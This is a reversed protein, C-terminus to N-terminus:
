AVLAALREYAARGSAVQGEAAAVLEDRLAPAREWLADLEAGLRDGAAPERLDVVACGAGFRESLGHLKDAYYGSAAVGLAPIGQALAFVAAHYSGAVVVRCRGTAAIAAAVADHGPPDATALAVAPAPAVDGRADAALSSGVAAADREAPHTSIAIPAVGAGRREAFCAVAASVDAATDESVGSYDAVRLSLGIANSETVDGRSARLAPEVADDGTVLIRDARVGAGALLAPGTRGERLSVLGVTPLVERARARRAPDELPGVGQGM